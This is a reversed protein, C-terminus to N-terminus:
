PLSADVDADIARLDRAALLPDGDGGENGAADARAEGLEELPGAVLLAHVIEHVVQAAVRQVRLPELIEPPLEDKEDAAALLRKGLVFLHELLHDVREPPPPRQLDAVAVELARPARHADLREREGDVIVLEVDDPPRATGIGARVPERADFGRLRHAPR